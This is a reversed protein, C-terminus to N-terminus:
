TVIVRDLNCGAKLRGWSSDCLRCQLQRIKIRTAEKSSHSNRLDGSIKVVKSFLPVSSHMIYLPGQIPIVHFCRMDKQAQMDQYVVLSISHWEIVGFGGSASVDWWQQTPGIQPLEPRTQPSQGDKRGEWVTLESPIWQSCWLTQPFRHAGAEQSYVVWMFRECSM